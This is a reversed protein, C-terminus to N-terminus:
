LGARFDAVKEKAEEASHAVVVVQGISDLYQHWDAQAPSVRGKTTKMEIWLGWAPVFLDPVGPSVGEMKLRSAAVINRAGGNPIAFIRVGPYTRRFWNVTLVQEKHETYVAM